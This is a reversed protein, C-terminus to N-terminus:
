FSYDHYCSMIGFSIRGFKSYRKVEKNREIKELQKTTLGSMLKYYNYEVQINDSIRHQKTMELWKEKSYYDVRLWVGNSRKVLEIEPASTDSKYEYEQDESMGNKDIRIANMRRIFVHEQNLVKTVEYPIRDSFFYETVGTGVEIVSCIMQNEQLRNLVSGYYKM